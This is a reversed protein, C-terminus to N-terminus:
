IETQDNKEKKNNSRVTREDKSKKDHCDKCLVQLNERECYLNNIFSNWGVFGEVPDVVPKVHDCFINNTRKGEIVVSKPVEQKCGNCLYVGKRVRAEKVTDSLPKWFRSKSRLASKVFAIYQAETMTGSARTKNPPM